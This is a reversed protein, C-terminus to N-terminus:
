WRALKNDALRPATATRGHGCSGCYSTLSEPDLPPHISSLFCSFPPLLPLPIDVPSFSSLLIHHNRSASFICPGAVASRLPHLSCQRAPVTQRSPHAASTERDHYPPAHVIPHRCVCMCVCVRKTSPLDYQSRARARQDCPLRRSPGLSRPARALRRSPTWPRDHRAADFGASVSVLAHAHQLQTHRAHRARFVCANPSPQIVISRRCPTPCM